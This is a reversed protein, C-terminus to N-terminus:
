MGRRIENMDEKLSVLEKEIEWIKKKVRLAAAKNHRYELKALDGSMDSIMGVMDKLRILYRKM